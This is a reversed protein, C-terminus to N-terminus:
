IKIMKDILKDMSESENFLDILCYKCLVYHNHVLSYIDSKYLQNFKKCNKCKVKLTKSIKKIITIGKASKEEFQEFQLIQGFMRLFKRKKFNEIDLINIQYLLQDVVETTYFLMYPVFYYFYNLQSDWEDHSSFIFNLNSKETRFESHRTTVLHTALNSMAYFSKPSSKDYRLEFVLEKDLFYNNKIKNLSDKIVEKKEENKLKGPDFKEPQDKFKILFSDQDVLIQELILLNELFPKRILAFAVTLKMRKASDLAQFIFHCVDSIIAFVVNNKIIQAAEKEYGKRELWGIIDVEDKHPIDNEEKFEVKVNVKKITNADKLIWVLDDYLRVALNHSFHYNESLYVDDFETIFLQNYM